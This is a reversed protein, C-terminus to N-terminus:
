KAESWRQLVRAVAVFRVVRDPQWYSAAEDLTSEVLRAITEGQDLPAHVLLEDHLCMVLQGGLPTIRARVIAAWSKFLEAAAGQVVANRAYRGRGAAASRAAQSNTVDPDAWMPVLRGGYTRVDSGSQGAREASRLYEIAVPYASEMQQLVDGAVGSTQGYMAALMGVKAIPREVNLRSSIPAYLDDSQTAAALARDGSVAALVRPEIQGLDAHVFVFGPEAAVADRLDAPMNHLGAQATMRGAAGDCSTWGGRLRGGRVHEDLWAYGYTSGIREAKRWKLLADVFPHEERYSELKWARTSTEDIGLVRLMELVQSTNRIDKRLGGPAVAHVVEDRQERLQAAHAEDIPRPGVFREIIREAVGVDIPLGDFGLETCLLEAASESKAIAEARNANRRSADLAILKERQLEYAEMAARAWRALRAPHLAWGGATWDPRLHGDTQIPDEINGDDTIPTSLLDLQGMSPISDLSLEHLRAWVTATDARWGGYILRHVATIDWCAAVRLGGNVFHEPTQASWWVWRPRFTSELVNALGVPDNGAVSWSCDNTALGIGVGEGVAVALSAGRRLGYARLDEILEGPRVTRGPSVAM